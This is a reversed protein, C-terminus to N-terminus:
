RDKLQELLELYKKQYADVETQKDAKLKDIQEQYKRETELLERDCELKQQKRVSEVAENEHKEM